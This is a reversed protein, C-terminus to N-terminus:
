GKTGPGRTRHLLVTPSAEESFIENAKHVVLPMRSLADADGNMKGPRYRIDFNFDSLKGVWRHGIANLKATSLIYTLPNNDTYVSSSRM